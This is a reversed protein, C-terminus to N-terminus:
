KKGIEIDDINVDLEETAGLIDVDLEEMVGLIVSLSEM